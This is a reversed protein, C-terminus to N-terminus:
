VGHNTEGDGESEGPRDCLEYTEGEIKEDRLACSLCGRYLTGESSQYRHGHIKDHLIVAEKEATTLKEM